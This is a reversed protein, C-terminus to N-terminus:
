VREGKHQLDGAKVRYNAVYGRGPVWRAAKARSPRSVVFEQGRDEEVIYRKGGYIWVEGVQPRANIKATKPGVQQVTLKVRFERGEEFTIRGLYGKMGVKELRENIAKEIVPRLDRVTDANITTM